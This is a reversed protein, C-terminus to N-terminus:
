ASPARARRRRAGARGLAGRARRDRVRRARRLGRRAGRRRPAARRPRDGGRLRADEDEEQGVQADHRPHGAPARLRVGDPLRVARRRRVADEGDPQRALRRPLRRALRDRARARALLRAVRAGGARRPPPRDRPRSPARLRPRPAARRPGVAGRRRRLKAAYARMAAEVALMHRRLSESATWERVLDWAQERDLPEPVATLSLRRRPSTRSRLRPAARRCSRARRCCSRPGAAAPRCGGSRRPPRAACRGACGPRRPSARGARRDRRALDLPAALVGDRQLASSRPLVSPRRRGPRARDAGGEQDGARQQRAEARRQHRRRAAVHDAAAAQVRVEVGEAREARRTSCPRSM